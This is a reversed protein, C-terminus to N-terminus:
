FSQQYGPNDSMENGSSVIKFHITIHDDLLYHDANTTCPVESKAFGRQSPVPDLFQSNISAERM